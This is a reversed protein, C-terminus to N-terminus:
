ITKKNDNLNIINGLKKNIDELKECYKPMNLYNSITEISYQFCEIFLILTSHINNCDFGGDILIGEETEKLKELITSFNNHVYNCLYKYYIYQEQMELKDVLKSTGLMKSSEILSNLEELRKLLKEENIFMFLKKKKIRNLTNRERVYDDNIIDNINNDDKIVYKMKFLSEYMTRLLILADSCLGRETLIIGSQFTTHIQNFVTFVYIDINTPNEKVFNKEIESALSNYSFIVEYTLPHKKRVQKVLKKVNKDLFGFKIKKNKFIM